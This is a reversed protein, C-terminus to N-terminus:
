PCALTAHSSPTGSNMFSLPSFCAWAGAVGMWWYTATTHGQYYAPFLGEALSWALLIALLFWTFDIGVRFGFITFLHIKRGFM